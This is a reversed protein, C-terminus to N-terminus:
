HLVRRAGGDRPSFPPAGSRQARAQPALFSKKAAKVGAGIGAGGRQRLSSDQKILIAPM